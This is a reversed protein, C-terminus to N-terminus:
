RNCFYYPSGFKKRIRGQGLGRGVLKPGLRQKKPLITGFWLQIGFKFNSTEVTAFILLPGLKKSAGRALVGALKQGLCRKQYAKTQTGFKFNSAEVTASIRLPDWIKNHAGRAWVGGSIKARFTTKQCALGLGLKHVLNSTALKLPQLFVYPTGFKQISGQGLGGGITTRFTTKPLCCGTGLHHLFKTACTGTHRRGCQTELSFAFNPFKPALPTLPDFNRTSFTM